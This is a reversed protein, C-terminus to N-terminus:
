IKGGPNHTSDSFGGLICIIYFGIRKVINDPFRAKAYLMCKEHPGPEPEPPPCPQEITEKWEDTNPMYDEPNPSYSRENEEPHDDDQLLIPPPPAKPLTGDKILERCSRPYRKCWATVTIDYLGWPDILVVPNNLAYTYLNIEGNLGLPDTRLYKGIKQDYYRFRNYHLGTEEDFYQGPFRLNNTITSPLDVKAEGFSSYKASWVVAGNVATLKQPTGLHDNQCFYYQGGVKMFLPDTTWTSGPRYGYSKIVTGAADVEAVLGEDAYVFYTKVGGIEKWLRRGFPDYYYNSIL